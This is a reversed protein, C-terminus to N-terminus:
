GREGREGEGMRGIEGKRKRKKGRKKRKKSPFFRFLFLSYHTCELRALSVDVLASVVSQCSPRYMSGGEEEKRERERRRNERKM